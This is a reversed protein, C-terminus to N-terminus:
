GAERMKFFDDEDINLLGYFRNISTRNFQIRKGRVYVKLDMYDKANTYFKCMVPMLGLQPQKTFLEWNRGKIQEGM